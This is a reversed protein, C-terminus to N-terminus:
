RGMDERAERDRREAEEMERKSGFGYEFWAYPKGSSDYGFPQPPVPIPTTSWSSDGTTKNRQSWRKIVMVIVWLVFLGPLFVILGELLGVM